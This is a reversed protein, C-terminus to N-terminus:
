FRSVIFPSNKFGPKNYQLRTGDFTKIDAGIALLLAHGAATDWEMTPGFRISLDAKQAAILAMKISSGMYEIKSVNLRGLYHKTKDPINHSRSLLVHYSSSIPKKQVKHWTNNEDIEFLQNDYGVYTVKRVPIDIVGITPTGNEILGLNVTFDPRDHIFEKTGDLPDVLWFYPSNESLNHEDQEESIIPITQDIRTLDSIIIDNSYQDAETVPSNDDKKWISFDQAYIDLIKESAKRATFITEKALEELSNKDM